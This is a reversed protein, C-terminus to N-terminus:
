LQEGGSVLLAVATDGTTAQEVLVVLVQDAEGDALLLAAEDLGARHADISPSVCVVPGRLGWRAAVHGAVANPVSQFFYLPGIRKSDAVAERVHTASALDGTRSVLVLATREMPATRAFCRDAVVAVLPSFSSGVFGPLQPPGAVADDGPQPWHSATVVVPDPLGPTSIM